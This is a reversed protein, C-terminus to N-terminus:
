KPHFYGLSTKLAEIAFDMQSRVSTMKSVVNGKPYRRSVPIERTLLGLQNARVALYYNLAYKVFVDRFPQVKPHLLYEKSYARFGNTVDTYWYRAAASIIPSVFLRIGLLRVLPTNVHRGGKIFRSGQVYHYGKNLHKVFKPIAHVGDKNNGDIQIVGEYGEKLAYAFAMRMQAAQRGKSKKTLLAKVKQSKLFSPKTSGDTSGWDAIIIDVINTYKKMKKLQKKIKEGENLLPICVCYVNKKPNLEVVEHLPLQWTEPYKKMVLWLVM